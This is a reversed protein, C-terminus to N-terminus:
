RTPTTVEIVFDDPYPPAGPVPAGWLVGRLLCGAM